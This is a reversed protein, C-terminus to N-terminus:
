GGASNLFVSTRLFDIEMQGASAKLSAFRIWLAGFPIRMVIAWGLFSEALGLNVSGNMKVTGFCM